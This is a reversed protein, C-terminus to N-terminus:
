AARRRRALAGMIGLGALLMAYSEPEPVPQAVAQLSFTYSPHGPILKSDVTTGFVTASFSGSSVVKQPIVLEISDFLFVGNSLSGSYTQDFVTVSLTKVGQGWVLGGLKLGFFDSDVNGSVDWLSSGSLDFNLTDSFNTCCVDVEREFSAYDARADTDSLTFNAAQAGFGVASLALAIALKKM